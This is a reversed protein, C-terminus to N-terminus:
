QAPARPHADKGITKKYTDTFTGKCYRATMSSKGVGGNGVVIVKVTAALPARSNQPPPARAGRVFPTLFLVGQSEGVRHARVVAGLV